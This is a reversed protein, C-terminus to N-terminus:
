MKSKKLDADTFGLHSKQCKHLALIIPQYNKVISQLMDLISWWRVTMEQLIASMPVGFEQQLERVKYLIPISQNIAQM